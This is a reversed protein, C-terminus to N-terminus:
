PKTDDLATATGEGKFCKVKEVILSESWMKLVVDYSLM